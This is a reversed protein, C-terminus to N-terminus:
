NETYWWEGTCSMSWDSLSADGPKALDVVGQVASMATNRATVAALYVKEQLARLEAAASERSAVM